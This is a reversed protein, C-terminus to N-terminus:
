PNLMYLFKYGYTKELQEKQEAIAGAIEENSLGLKSTVCVLPFAGDRWKASGFRLFTRITVMHFVFGSCLRSGLDEEVKPYKVLDSQNSAGSKSNEACCPLCVYACPRM